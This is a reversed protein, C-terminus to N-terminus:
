WGYMKQMTPPSSSFNTEEGIQEASYIRYKEGNREEANYRFREKEAYYKMMKRNRVASNRPTESFNREYKRRNRGSNNWTKTCFKWSNTCFLINKTCFGSPIGAHKKLMKPIKKHPNRIKKAKKEQSKRHFFGNKKLDSRGDIVSNIGIPRIDKM